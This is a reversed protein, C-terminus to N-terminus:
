ASRLNGLSVGRDAASGPQGCRSVAAVASCVNVSWLFVARVTGAADALVCRTRLPHGSYHGAIGSLASRAVLMPRIRSNRVFDGVAQGWGRRGAATTGHGTRGRWRGIGSGDGGRGSRRNCSFAGQGCSRWLMGAGFGAGCHGRERFRPGLYRVLGSQAGGACCGGCRPTNTTTTSVTIRWLASWSSSLVTGTRSTREKNRGAPGAIAPHIWGAM